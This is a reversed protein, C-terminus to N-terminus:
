VTFLLTRCIVTHVGRAQATRLLNPSSPSCKMTKIPQAFGFDDKALTQGRMASLRLCVSASINRRRPAVRRSAWLFKPRQSFQPELEIRGIL